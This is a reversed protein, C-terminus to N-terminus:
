FCPIALAFTQGTGPVDSLGTHSSASFTSDQSGNSASLGKSQILPSATLPNSSLDPMGQGLNKFSFEPHFCVPWTVYPLLPALFRGPIGPVAAYGPGM